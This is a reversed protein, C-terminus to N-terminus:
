GRDAVLFSIHKLGLPLPASRANYFSVLTDMSDQGATIETSSFGGAVLTLYLLKLQTPKVSFIMGEVLRDVVSLFVSLAQPKAPSVM